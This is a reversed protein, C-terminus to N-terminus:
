KVLEPNKVAGGSWNRGEVPRVLNLVQKFWGNKWFFKCYLIGKLGGGM